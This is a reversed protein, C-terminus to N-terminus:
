TTWVSTTPITPSAHELDGINSPGLASQPVPSPGLLMKNESSMVAVLDISIRSKKEEVPSKVRAKQQSSAPLLEPTKVFSGSLFSSLSLCFSLGSPKCSFM